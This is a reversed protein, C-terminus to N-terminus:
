EDINVLSLYHRAVTYRAAYENLILFQLLCICEWVKHGQNCFIAFTRHSNRVLNFLPLHDTHRCFLVSSAVTSPWCHVPNTALCHFSHILTDLSPQQMQMGSTIGHSQSHVPLYETWISDRHLGPIPLSLSPFSMKWKNIDRYILKVVSFCIMYSPVLFLIFLMCVKVSCPSLKVGSSESCQKYDDVPVIEILKMVCSDDDM